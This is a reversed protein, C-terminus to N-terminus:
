LTLNEFNIASPYNERITNCASEYSSSKGYFHGIFRSAFTFKILYM